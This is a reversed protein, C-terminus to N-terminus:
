QSSIELSPKAFPIQSKALALWQSPETIPGIGPSRKECLYALYYNAALTLMDYDVESKYYRYDINVGAEANMTTPAAILAIIGDRANITEVETETAVENGEDDYDVLYVTIDDKDVDKDFDTDAIQRYETRFIKNIGDIGGELAENHVEITALRLIARDAKSVLDNVDADSIDAETFQSIIRLQALTAYTNASAAEGDSAGGTAM